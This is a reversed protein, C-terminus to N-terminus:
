TTPEEALPNETSSRQSGPAAATARTFGSEEVFGAPERIGDKFLVCFLYPHFTAADGVYMGCETCHSNM